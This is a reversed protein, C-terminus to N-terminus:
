GQTWFTYGNPNCHRCQLLSPENDHNLACEEEPWDVSDATFEKLLADGKSVLFKWGDLTLNVGRRTPVLSDYFEEPIVDLARKDEPPLFFDRIDIVGREPKITIFTNRGLHVRSSEDEELARTVECSVLMLEQWQQPTFRVVRPVFNEHGSKKFTSCQANYACDQIRIIVEGDSDVGYLLYVGGNLKLLWDAYM